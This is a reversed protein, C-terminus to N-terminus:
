DISLKKMNISKTTDGFELVSGDKETNIYKESEMDLSSNRRQRHEKKM